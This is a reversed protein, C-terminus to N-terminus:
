IGSGGGFFSFGAFQGKDKKKNIEFRMISWIENITEQNTFCIFLNNVQKRLLFKFHCFIQSSAFEKRAFRRAEYSPNACEKVLIQLDM